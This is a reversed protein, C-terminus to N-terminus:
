VMCRGHWGLGVAYCFGVGGDGATVVHGGAAAADAIERVDVGAAYGRRAV